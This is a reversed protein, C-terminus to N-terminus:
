HTFGDTRNPCRFSLGRYGAPGRHDNPAASAGSFRGPKAVHPARPRHAGSYREAMDHWRKCCIRNRRSRRTNPRALIGDARKQRCASSLLKWQAVRIEGLLSKFKKGYILESPRDRLAQDVWDYSAVARIALTSDRSRTM